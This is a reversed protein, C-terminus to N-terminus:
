RESGSYQLCDALMNPFITMDVFIKTVLYISLKWHM